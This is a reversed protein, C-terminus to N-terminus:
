TRVARYDDTVEKKQKWSYCKYEELKLTEDPELKIYMFSDWM